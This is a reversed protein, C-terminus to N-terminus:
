VGLIWCLLRILRSRRPRLAKYVIKPDQFHYCRGSVMVIEVGQATERVMEINAQNILVERTGIFRM